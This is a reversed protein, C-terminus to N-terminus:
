GYGFSEPYGVAAKSYFVQNGRRRWIDVRAPYVITGYLEERKVRKNYPM